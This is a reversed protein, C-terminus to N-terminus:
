ATARMASRREARRVHRRARGAATQRLRAHHDGVRADAVFQLAHDSIAHARRRGRQRALPLARVDGQQRRDRRSRSRDTWALARGIQDVPGATRLHARHRLLRRERRRRREHAARPGLHTRAPRSSTIPFLPSRRTSACRRNTRISGLLGLEFSLPGHVGALKKGDDLVLDADEVHAEFRPPAGADSRLTADRLVGGTVKVPADGALEGLVALPLSRAQWLAGAPAGHADLPYSRGDAFLTAGATYAFTDRSVDASATVNQLSAAVQPVSGASLNVSGGNITLHMRDVHLARLARGLRAGAGGRWRQVSFTLQPADLTVAVGDDGYAFAARPLQALFVGNPSTLGVDELVLTRGEHRVQGIEVAYGSASALSRTLLARELPERITLGAVVLIALVLLTRIPPGRRAPPKTRFHM